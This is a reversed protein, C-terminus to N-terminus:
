TTEKPREPLEICAENFRSEVGRCLESAEDTTYNNTSVLFVIVGETKFEAFRGPRKPPEWDYEVNMCKEVANYESYLSSVGHQWKLWERASPKSWQMYQAWADKLVDFYNMHEQKRTQQLPRIFCEYVKREHMLHAHDYAQSGLTNRTAHFSIM